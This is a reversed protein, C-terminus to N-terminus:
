HREYMLFRVTGDDGWGSQTVHADDFCYTSSDIRIFAKFHGNEKGARDTITYHRVVAKLQYTIAAESEQSRAFGAMDLSDPFKLPDGRDLLPIGARNIEIILVRPLHTFEPLKQVVGTRHCRPCRDPPLDTASMRTRLLDLLEVLAQPDPGAEMTLRLVRSQFSKHEGYYCKKCQHLEKMAFDFTDGIISRDPPPLGPFACARHYMVLDTHLLELLRQVLEAADEGAVAHLVELAQVFSQPSIFPAPSPLSMAVQLQCFQRAMGNANKPLHRIQAEIRPWTAAFYTRLVDLHLLCQLPANIYCSGFSNLFGVFRPDRAPPSFSDLVPSVVPPPASSLAATPTNVPARSPHFSAPPASANRSTRRAPAPPIEPNTPIGSGPNPQPDGGATPSPNMTSASANRSTRRAPAPPFEPNTPIGSGPTPQPDRNATPSSTSPSVFANRSTRRAPAPPFEQNTPVAQDPAPSPSVPPPAPTRRLKLQQLWGPMSECCRCRWEIELDSPIEGTEPVNLDRGIQQIWDYLQTGAAKWVTDGLKKAFRLSIRWGLHTRQTHSSHRTLIIHDGTEEPNVGSRTLAEALSEDWRAPLRCGKGDPDERVYPWVMCCRIEPPFRRKVPAELHAVNHLERYFEMRSRSFWPNAMTEKAPFCKGANRALARDCWKNRSEYRRIIHKVVIQIRDVFERHGYTEANLHGNVSEASNTTTPCGKRLWLAWHARDALHHKSGPAHKGLLALLSDYGQASPSWESSRRQMEGCIVEVERQWETENFTRLLREGWEGIATGSGMSEIIHRHCIKWTLGWDHIFKELASGQDTVIPISQLLERVNHIERRKMPSEASENIPGSYEDEPRDDGDKVAEPDEPSPQNGQAQHPNPSMRALVAPFLSAQLDIQVDTIHQYIRHYSLATETPSIGFAIPISENAVIAHLIPLTYPHVSRFTTDTMLCNPGKMLIDIAWPFVVTLSFLYKNPGFGILHRNHHPTYIISVDGGTLQGLMKGFENTWRGRQAAQVFTAALNPFLTANLHRVVDSQDDPATLIRSQVLKRFVDYPHDTTANTPDFKVSPLFQLCWKCHTAKYRAQSFTSPRCYDGVLHPVIADPGPLRPMTLRFSKLDPAVDLEFTPVLIRMPGRPPDPITLITSITILQTKTDFVGTYDSSLDQLWTALSLMSNDDNISCLPITKHKLHGPMYLRAALLNAPNLISMSWIVNSFEYPIQDIIRLEGPSLVFWKYV